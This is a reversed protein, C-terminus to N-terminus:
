GKSGQLEAGGSLRGDLPGTSIAADSRDPNSIRSFDEGLHRRVIGLIM